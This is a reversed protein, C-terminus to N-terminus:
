SLGDKTEGGGRRVVRVGVEEGGRGVVPKLTITTESMQVYRWAKERAKEWDGGGEDVDLELSWRGFLGVMAAVFEVAAFRRGPCARQGSSFPIYAGRPPRFRLNTIDLTDDVGGVGGEGEPGEKFWREPRFGGLDAEEENESEGRVWYRPNQAVAAACLLVNTHPPIVHTTGRYVLPQPTTTTYKPILQVPPFLRLTENFIAGAWGASLTQYHKEYSLPLPVDGDGDGDRGEGVVGVVADIEAQLKVQYHPHMALMMLAYFLAGSTTEHGALLMTFTNAIVDKETLVEEEEKSSTSGFGGKEKKEMGSQHEVVLSTMIDEGRGRRGGGGGGGGLEVVKEEFMEGMYGRFEEYARGARRVGRFPAYRLMVRPLALIFLIYTVILHLSSQFTMTHGPPPKDEVEDKAPNSSPSSTSPSRSANPKAIPWVLKQRFGAYSIIHLAFRTCDANLTKIVVPPKPNPNPPDLDSTTTTSSENSNKLSPQQQLWGEVMATIKELSETWVIKNNRENFSGATARRHRRWRAGNTTVVNEGFVDLIGYVHVPKVFGAGRGVVEAVVEADAVWLVNAGASVTMVLDSGLARFVEYKSRWTWEPELFRLASTSGPLPPPIRLLRLLTSGFFLWLSSHEYFPLIRYPLGTSRARLIHTLLHTTYYLTSATLLTLLSQLLLNM